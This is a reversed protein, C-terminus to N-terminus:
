PDRSLPFHNILKGWYRFLSRVNLPNGFFCFCNKFFNWTSFHLFNSFRVIESFQDLAIKKKGFRSKGCVLMLKLIEAKKQGYLKEQARLSQSSIVFVFTDHVKRVGQLYYKSSTKAFFRTLNVLPRNGSNYLDATCGTTCPETCGTVYLNSPFKGQAAPLGVREFVSRTTGFLATCIASMLM